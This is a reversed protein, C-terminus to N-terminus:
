NVKEKTKRTKKVAQAEQGEQPPLLAKIVKLINGCETKLMDENRKYEDETLGILDRLVFERAFLPTIPSSGDVHPLFQTLMGLAEGIERARALDVTKKTNNKKM